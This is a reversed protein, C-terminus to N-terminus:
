FDWSILLKYSVSVVRVPVLLWKVTLTVKILKKGWESMQESLSSFMKVMDAHKYANCFVCPLCTFYLYDLLEHDCAFTWLCNPLDLLHLYWVYDLFWSTSTLAFNPLLHDFESCFPLGLLAPTCLPPWFLCASFCQFSHDFCMVILTFYM